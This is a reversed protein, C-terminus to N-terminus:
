EEQPKRATAICERARDLTAKLEKLWIPKSIFGFVNHRIADIVAEQSEDGTIVIIPTKQNLKRVARIVETGSIGPLNIDTLVLEPRVKQFIALAEEGDPALHVDYGEDQLFQRLMEGLAPEDDVILVSTSTM